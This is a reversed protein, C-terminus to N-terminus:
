VLDLCTLSYILCRDPTFVHFKGTYNPWFNSDAVHQGKGEFTPRSGPLCIHGRGHFSSLHKMVPFFSPKNGRKYHKLLWFPSMIYSYYRLFLNLTHNLCSLSTNCAFFYQKLFHFNCVRTFWLDIIGRTPHREM